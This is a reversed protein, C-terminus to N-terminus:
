ESEEDQTAFRDTQIEIPVGDKWTEVIDGGDGIVKEILGDKWYEWHMPYEVAPEDGDSTLLGNKFNLLVVVPAGDIEITLTKQGDYLAGGNPYNWSAFQYAKFTSCSKNYLENEKLKEQVEKYESETVDHFDKHLIEEFEKDTM